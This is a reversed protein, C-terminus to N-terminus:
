LLRGTLSLSFMNSGVTTFAIKQWKKLWNDILGSLDPVVQILSEFKTKTSSVIVINNVYMGDVPLACILIKSPLSVLNLVKKSLNQMVIHSFKSDWSLIAPSCQSHLEVTEHKRLFVRTCQVDDVITFM